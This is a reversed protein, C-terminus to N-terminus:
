RGSFIRLAFNSSLSLNEISPSAWFYRKLLPFHRSWTNVLKIFRGGRETGVIKKPYKGDKHFVIIDGLECEGISKEKLKSPDLQITESENLIIKNIENEILNNLNKKLQTNM